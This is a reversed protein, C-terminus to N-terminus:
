ENKDGKRLEQEIEKILKNIIRKEDSTLNEKANKAYVNLLYTKGFSVFDVYIVRGGSSKGGNGLAIRIKRLGDTGQIVKGLHPKNIIYNQLELLDADTLELKKWNNTFITLEIFERKM